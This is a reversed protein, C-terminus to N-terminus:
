CWRYSFVWLQTCIFSGSASPSLGIATLLLLLSSYNNIIIINLWGNYDFRCWNQKCESGGAGGKGKNTV